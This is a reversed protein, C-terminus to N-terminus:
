LRRLVLIHYVPNDIPWAIPEYLQRYRVGNCILVDSMRAGYSKDLYAVANYDREITGDSTAQRALLTDIFRSNAQLSIKCPVSEDTETQVYSDGVRTPEGLTIRELTAPTTCHMKIALLAQGVM